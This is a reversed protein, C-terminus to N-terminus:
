GGSENLAATERRKVEPERDSRRGVQGVVPSGLAVTQPGSDGLEAGADGAAPRAGTHQQDFATALARARPVRVADRDQRGRGVEVHQPAVEELVPPVGAARAARPGGLRLADLGQRALRGDPQPVM